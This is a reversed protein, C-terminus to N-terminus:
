PSTYLPGDVRDWPKGPKADIPGFLTTNYDPNAIKEGDDGKITKSWTNVFRREDGGTAYPMDFTYTDDWDALRTHANALKRIM